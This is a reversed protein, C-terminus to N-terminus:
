KGSKKKEAKDREKFVIDAYSTIAPAKTGASLHTYTSRTVSDSDHGAISRIIEIPLGLKVMNSIAIHRMAHQRVFDLKFGALLARWQKTDTQHRIPRGDPTTFVLNEMGKPPKWNESKKWENQVKKYERLVKVMRKDLPIIRKGAVTKTRRKIYLAKTKPDIALQQRIELSTLGGGSLNKFCDWEVGLKEGARLGLTILLLWRAEDPHGELYQALREPYWLKNELKEDPNEPKGIKPVTLSPNELIIKEAYAYRFAMNVVGQIVRKKSQGLLPEDSPVLNGDKDKILKKKENLEDFLFEEIDKSTVLRVPKKGFNPAIHLRIINEYQAVVVPDIRREDATQISKWRLWTEFLELTTMKLEKPTSSIASSPLNGLMVLRKVWNENRRTIAEQESDGTGSVQVATGNERMYLTKTARYKTKGDVVIKFVSGEGRKKPAKKDAWLEDTTRRGM